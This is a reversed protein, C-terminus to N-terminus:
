ITNIKLYKISYTTKCEKINKWIEYYDKNEEETEGTEIFTRENYKSSYEWIAKKINNIDYTVYIKKIEDLIQPYNHFDVGEILMNIPKILEIKNEIFNNLLDEIILETNLTEIYIHKNFRNDWEKVFWNIMKLDNTMGGYSKRLELSFILNNFLIVNYNPKINTNDLHKYNERTNINCLYKVYNLLWNIDNNTPNWNNTSYAVMMWTLIPFYKNLMTDELTIILIRRLFENLDLNIFQYSINISLDTMQRRISKQLQSKLLSVNKTEYNTTFIYNDCINQSTHKNLYILLNNKSYTWKIKGINQGNEPITNNFTIKYETTSNDLYFITPYIEKKGLFSLLTKQM